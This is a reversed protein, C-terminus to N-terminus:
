KPNIEIDLKVAYITDNILLYKESKRVMIKINKLRM